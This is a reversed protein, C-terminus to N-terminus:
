RRVFAKPNFTLSAIAFLTTYRKCYIIVQDYKVLDSESLNIKYNQSGKYQKLPTIIFMGASQIKSSRLILFLDPGETVFFNKDLNVYLGQNMKFLTANGQASHAMGAGKFQGAAIVTNNLIQASATMGILASVVLTKFFITIM